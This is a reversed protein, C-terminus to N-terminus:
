RKRPVGRGAGDANIENRPLRRAVFHHGVAIADVQHWELLSLFVWGVDGSFVIFPSRGAHFPPFNISGRKWCFYCFIFYFLCVISSSIFSSLSASRFPAWDALRPVSNFLRRQTASPRGFIVPRTIFM